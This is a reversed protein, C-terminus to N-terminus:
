RYLAKVSGWTTPKSPVTCHPDFLLEVDDVVSPMIATANAQFVEALIWQTDAPIPVCELSAKEWSNLDGDLTITAPLYLTATPWGNASNFTRIAVGVAVGAGPSCVNFWASFTVTAPPGSSVDVAQWAQSYSGGGINLRLMYPNSRPSLCPDASMIDADEAGWFGAQFPPGVVTGFNGVPGTPGSDYAPNVLQASAPAVFGASAVLVALVTLVTAVSFKRVKATIRM